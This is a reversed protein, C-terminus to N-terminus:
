FQGRLKGLPWTLCGRWNLERFRIVRKQPQQEESDYAILHIGAETAHKNIVDGAGEELRDMARWLVTETLEDVVSLGLNGAYAQYRYAQCYLRLVKEDNQAVARILEPSFMCVHSFSQFMLSHQLGRLLDVGVQYNSVIERKADIHRVLTMLMDLDVEHQTFLMAANHITPARVSLAGTRGRQMWVERGFAYGTTLCGDPFDFFLKTPDFVFVDADMWIVRLYGEDLRQRTAVLRALDTIAQPNKNGRELYEPGCLEYFEDGALMYDHGHLRAWSQVSDLCRQIWKPISHNRFTQIVITNARASPM